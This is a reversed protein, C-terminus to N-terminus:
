AHLAKQLASDLSQVFAQSTDTAGSVGDVHATQASIAEQKLHPMAQDNIERSTTRDSPHQLFVVDVIKGNKIIAQVQIYGYYADASAGTYTGDVYQGSGTPTPMAMPQSTAQLMGNHDTPTVTQTKATASTVAATAERGEQRAHFSYIAFSLAVFVTLLLKKMGHLIGM